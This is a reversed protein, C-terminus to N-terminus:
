TLRVNLRKHLAYPDFVRLMFLVSVDKYFILSLNWGNVKLSCIKPLWSACRYDCSDGNLFWFL